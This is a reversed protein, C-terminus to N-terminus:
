NNGNKILQFVLAKSSVWFRDGDRLNSFQHKLSNTFVPGMMDLANNKKEILAGVYADVKEIGENGYLNELIAVIEPDNEALEEYTRRRPLGFAERVNNYSPIGIDRGRQVDIVSTASSYFNYDDVFSPDVAKAPTSVMGRLFPEIGGNSKVLGEINNEFIDRMTLPGKPMQNMDKDLMDISGALSSHGYRFSVTTFFEDISPNISSDYGKYPELKSGLLTPIYTEEVINQYFAVTDMKAKEFVDDDDLLPHLKAIKKAQLNHYRVFIVFISYTGPTKGIGTMIEKASPYGDNDLAISIGDRLKKSEELSMGYINSLDLFSTVTNLSARPLIIKDHSARNFQIEQYEPMSLSSAFPCGSLDTDIIKGDCPIPFSDSSNYITHSIDQAIFHGFELILQNKKEDNQPVAVHFLEEVIRRASPHSNNHLTVPISIQDAYGNSPPYSRVRPTGAVGWTPNEINNGTGDDIFTFYM